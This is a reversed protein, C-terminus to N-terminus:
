LRRREGRQPRALSVSHPVLFISQRRRKRGKKGWLNGVDHLNKLTLLGLREKAM